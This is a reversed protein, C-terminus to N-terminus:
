LRCPVAVDNDAFWRSNGGPLSLRCADDLVARMRVTTYEAGAVKLLCCCFLKAAERRPKGRGSIPYRPKILWM